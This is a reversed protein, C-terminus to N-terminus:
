AVLKVEKALYGPGGDNSVAIALCNKGAKLVNSVAFSHPKSWEKTRGVEVGNLLVVSSDDIPSLQLKSLGAALEGASVEFAARFVVTKHEPVARSSEDRVAAWASDDFASKMSEADTSEAIPGRHWMLIPVPEVTKLGPVILSLRLDGLTQYSRPSIRPGMVKERILSQGEAPKGSFFLRRAEALHVAADEPQKPVPPGAWITNENLQIREELAGGFVMAGIRGNGVPLAQTWGSQLDAPTDYWLKDTGQRAHAPASLLMCGVAILGSM